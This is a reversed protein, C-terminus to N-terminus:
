AYDILVNVGPTHDYAKDAIITTVQADDMFVVGTLSDLIARVLKDLDPMVSPMEDVATRRIDGELNKYHSRPRKMRFHLGVTVARGTPPSDGWEARAAATVMNRWVALGSGQAYHISAKGNKVHAVVSGQPIPKGDVSFRCLM